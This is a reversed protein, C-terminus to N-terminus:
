GLAISLAISTGSTISQSAPYTMFVQKTGSTFNVVNGNNSSELITTRSLTNTGSYTGIGTEWLGSTSDVIAYFTGDGVSLVDSFAQFSTVAGSLTIAGTGTTTTTEKVRDFVRSM